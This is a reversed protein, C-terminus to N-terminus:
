DEVLGIRLAYRYLDLRDHADLKAYISSRVNDVTKPSVDLTEAIAEVGRNLVFLRFVEKERPTLSDYRSRELGSRASHLRIASTALGELVAGELGLDGRNVAELVRLVREEDQDKGIFGRAGAVLAELVSEARISMSVAICAPGEEGRRLERIFEIGNQGKLNVDVILIAPPRRTEALSALLPRAEEASGAMGVVAFRFTSEVMTKLGQRVSPHDDVIFVPVPDISM